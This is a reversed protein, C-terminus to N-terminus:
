KNVHVDYTPDDEEEAAADSSGGTPIPIPIPIPVPIPIPILSPVGGNERDDDEEPLQITTSIHHDGGVVTTSTDGGSVTIAPGGFNSRSPMTEPKWDFVGPSDWRGDRFDLTKNYIGQAQASTLKEGPCDTPLSSGEVGECISCYPPSRDVMEHSM